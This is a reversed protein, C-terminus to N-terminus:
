SLESVCIIDLGADKTLRPHLGYLALSSCTNALIHSWSKHMPNFSLPTGNVAVRPTQVNEADRQLYMEALYEFVAIWAIFNSKEPFM